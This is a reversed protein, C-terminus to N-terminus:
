HYNEYGRLFSLHNLVNIMPLRFCEDMKLYDRNAFEFFLTSYWGFTEDFQKKDESWQKEQRTQPTGIRDRIDEEDAEHPDKTKWIPHKLIMDAWENFYRVAGAIYRYQINEYYSIPVFPTYMYQAITLEDNQRVARLLDIWNGITIESTEKLTLIM